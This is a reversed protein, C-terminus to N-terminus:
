SPFHPSPLWPLLNTVFRPPPEVSRGGGHKGTPYSKPFALGAPSDSIRDLCSLLGAAWWYFLSVCTTPNSILVLENYQPLSCSLTLIPAAWKNTAAEFTKFIRKAHQVALAQSSPPYLSIGFTQSSFAPPLREHSLSYLGWGRGHLYHFAGPQSHPPSLRAIGNKLVM